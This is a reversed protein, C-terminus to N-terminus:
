VPQPPTQEIPQAPLRGLLGAFARYFGWHALETIQDVVGPMWCLPHERLFAQQAEVAENEFLFSAFELEVALHDPFDKWAPDVQYGCRTYWQAVLCTFEGWYRGEGRQVSEQLAIHPGPGIFLRTYEAELEALRDELPRRWLADRYDVGLLALSEALRPDDLRSLLKADPERAFILALLRFGQAQYGSFSLDERDPRPHRQQAM